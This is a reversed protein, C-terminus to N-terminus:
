SGRRQQATSTAVKSADTEMGETTKLVEKRLKAFEEPLDRWSAYEPRSSGGTHMRTPDGGVEDETYVLLAALLQELRLGAEMIEESALDTAAMVVSKVEFLGTQM